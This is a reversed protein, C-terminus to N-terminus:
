VIINIWGDEVVVEYTEISCSPKTFCRGTRVDFRYGHLDCEVIDGYTRADALPYGKHPCHNEIAHLQGNINFLAVESGDKLQVTAGRGVPVADMQGVKVKKGQRKPKRRNEKGM